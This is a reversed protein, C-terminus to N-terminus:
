IDLWGKGKLLGRLYAVQGAHQLNDSMAARLRAGVTPFVPHDLKRDLDTESLTSLYLKTQGLVAQHYDLQTKVDPSKFAALDEPTHGLGFDGPDAPRNFKTHWGEKIWLQEEGLLGAFALDQGRTIHWVLWGMSNSDHAPQYNLDEQTLGELARGLVQSVHEFIDAVLANWTM